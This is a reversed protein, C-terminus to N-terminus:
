GLLKRYIHLLKEEKALLSFHKEVHNRALKARYLRQPMDLALAEQIADKIQEPNEPEVLWGTQGNIITEKSGGINTAIMMRGMAQAEISVLGFAEAKCSASIVIDSLGYMAPMDKINNTIMIKRSLEYSDILSQLEMRYDIHGKDDGVIICQVPKKLLKIAEIVYKHGKGRTIRGPVLIIPKDTQLKLQGSLNVMRAQPIKEYNFYELNIGCHVIEIKSADIEYNEKLYDAIFHSVAIVKVGKTMIANYKKKLFNNINYAGHVTTIFKCNTKKAAYYASWAPARSQVHVIGINHQRIIDALANINNYIIFPNKSNLPLEIHRAGADYLQAVLAGGASAVFSNYGNKQIFKANEIVEKEVGGSMLSPLVQLIGPKTGINRIDM